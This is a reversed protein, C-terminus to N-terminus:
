KRMAPHPRNPRDPMFWDRSARTSLLAITVLALCQDLATLWFSLSGLDPQEALQSLAFAISLAASIMYTLRAWNRGQSIRLYLWINFALFVLAAVGAIDALSSVASAPLLPLAASVEHWQAPLEVVSLAVSLWLLGVAVRVSLPKPVPAGSSIKPTANM